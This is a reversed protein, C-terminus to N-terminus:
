DGHRVRWAAIDRAHRECGDAHGKEADVPHGADPGNDKIFEGCSACTWHAYIPDYPMSPPGAVLRFAEKPGDIWEDSTDIGLPDVLERWPTGEGRAKRAWDILMMQARDSVKRATLMGDVLNAPRPYPENLVAGPGHETRLYELVAAEIRRRLVDIANERFLDDTAAHLNETM